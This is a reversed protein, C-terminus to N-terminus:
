NGSILFYFKKNEKKLKEKPKNSKPKRSNKPHMEPKKSSMSLSESLLGKSKLKDKGEKKSL